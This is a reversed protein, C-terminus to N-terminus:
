KEEQFSVLVRDMVEVLALDDLCRSTMVVYLQKGESSWPNAPMYIAENLTKGCGELWHSPRFEVELSVFIAPTGNHPDRKASLFTGWGRGDREPRKVGLREELSALLAGLAEEKSYPSGSGLDFFRVVAYTPTDDGSSAPWFKARDCGSPVAVWEPPVELSFNSPWSPCRESHLYTWPEPIPTPTPTATPTPTPTITPTPQPTATATPALTPTPTVTPLPTPTLEPTPTPAITPTPTLTAMPLPTETPRPALMTAMMPQSALTPRETSTPIPTPRPAVAPAPVPASTPQPTATPEPQSCAVAFVVLFLFPAFRALM